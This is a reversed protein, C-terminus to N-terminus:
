LKRKRESYPALVVSIKSLLYKAGFLAGLSQKPRVRLGGKQLTTKPTRLLGVGKVAGVFCLAVLSFLVFTTSARIHHRVFNPPEISSSCQLLILCSPAYM